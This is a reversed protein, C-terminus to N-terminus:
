QINEIAQGVRSLDRLQSPESQGQFAFYLTVISTVLIVLSGATALRLKIKLWKKEREAEAAEEAAKQEAEIKEEALKKREAALAEEAKIARVESAVFDPVKQEVMKSLFEEFESKFEMHDRAIDTLIAQRIAGLREDILKLLAENKQTAQNDAWNKVKEDGDTVFDKTPKQSHEFELKTVRDRLAGLEGDAM